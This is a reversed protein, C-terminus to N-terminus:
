LIKQNATRVLNIEEYSEIRLDDLTYYRAHLADALEKAHHDTNFRKETDIVIWKVTPLNVNRAMDLAEKLPDTVEDAPDLPVNADGDTVLVVYCDDNPRKKIYMSMYDCLYKIAGSLPTRRGIALDDLLKYIVEVERSPQLLMTIAKENFTMFGVRDKKVYHEKLLSLIAGKVAVMRNRIILSGSTDVAFLFTSSSRSERIKERMDQKEIIFAMDSDKEEHRKIQYPASARITADFALDPNREETMRSGVYRGSRDKSKQQFRKGKSSGQGRKGAETQEFLDITKFTEGIKTIVDETKSSYSQSDDTRPIAAGDAPVEDGEQKVPELEEQNVTKHSMKTIAHSETNFGVTSHVVKEQKDVRRGRLVKLRHNLCLVSAEVIDSEEVSDRGDIAALTMAVNAATIDGRHGDVGMKSCVEAVMRYLEKSPEWDKLKEQAGVIRDRVKEDQARYRDIFEDPDADFEFSRALIEERGEQDDIPDVNVCIDFHDLISPSLYSDTNGMTAILVTDVDYTTSINEREVRVSGNIVADIVGTIIRHEFLNIDDMYLINHDGRNLLGDQMVIKGEKVASEIDLCGFLQEDTVNLPINVISKGSIYGLTRAVLTKGTGPPGRILVAKIRPNAMACMLAKKTQEMGYIASFPYYAPNVDRSM